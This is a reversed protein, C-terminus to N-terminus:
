ALVMDAIFDNEVVRRVPLDVRKLRFFLSALTSKGQREVDSTRAVDSKGVQVHIADDATILRIGM